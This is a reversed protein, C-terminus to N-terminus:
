KQRKINGLQNELHNIKEDLINIKLMNKSQSELIQTQRLSVNSIIESLELHRANDKVDKEKIDKRIAYIYISGGIIGSISFLTLWDIGGERLKMLFQPYDSLLSIVFDVM